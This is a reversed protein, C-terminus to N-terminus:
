FKRESSNIPTLCKCVKWPVSTIMIMIMFGKGKDARLIVVNYRKSLEKIVKGYIYSVKIKSYNDRLKKKIQRLKNEPINYIDKLCWGNLM